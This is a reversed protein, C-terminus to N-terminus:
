PEVGLQKLHNRLLRVARFVRLKVAGISIGLADAIEAYPEEDILALM